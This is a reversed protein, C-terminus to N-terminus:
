LASRSAPSRAGVHALGRAVVHHQGLPPPGRSARRTQVQHCQQAPLRVPRRPRARQQRRRAPATTKRLHQLPGRRSRRGRGKQEGALIDLSWHQASHREGGENQRSCQGRSAQSRLPKTAVEDACAEEAAAKVASAPGPWGLLGVESKWIGHLSKRGGPFHRSILGSYHPDLVGVRWYEM